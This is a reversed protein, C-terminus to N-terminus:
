YVAWLRCLGCEFLSPIPIYECQVCNMLCVFECSTNCSWCVTHRGGEIRPHKIPLYHRDTYNWYMSRDAVVLFLIRNLWMTTQELKCKIERSRRGTWVIVHSAVSVREDSSPVTWTYLGYRYEGWLNGFLPHSKLLIGPRHHETILKEM